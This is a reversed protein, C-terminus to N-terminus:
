SASAVARFAEIRRALDDDLANAKILNEYHKANLFAIPRWSDPHVGLSAASQEVDSLADFAAKGDKDGQNAAAAAANCEAEQRAVSEKLDFISKQLALVDASPGDPHRRVSM